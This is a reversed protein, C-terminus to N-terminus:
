DSFPFEHITKYVPGQDTITSQILEFGDPEWTWPGVPVQWKPLSKTKSGSRALTVHANWTKTDMNPAYEALEARMKKVCRRWREIPQLIGNAAILKPNPRLAPFAELRNFTFTGFPRNYLRCVRIIPRITSPDVDGLFVLTLHWLSEDVRRLNGPKDAAILAESLLDRLDDPLPIGLFCRM